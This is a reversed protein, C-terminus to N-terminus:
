AVSEAAVGAAPLVLTATTGRGVTSTLELEGGVRELVVRALFLGLGMGGGNKTTFFPEGARALVEPAMGAGRDEVILHWHTGAASVRVAVAGHGRCLLGLTRLLVVLAALM